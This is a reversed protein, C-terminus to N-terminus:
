YKYILYNYCYLCYYKNFTIREYAYTSLVNLIAAYILLVLRFLNISLLKSHKTIAICHTGILITIYIHKNKNSLM